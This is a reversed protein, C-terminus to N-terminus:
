VHRKKWDYGPLVEAVGPKGVSEALETSITVHRRGAKRLTEAYTLALLLKTPGLLHVHPTDTEDLSFVAIGPGAVPVADPEIPADPHLHM